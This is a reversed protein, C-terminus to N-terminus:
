VLGETDQQLRRGREFAIAILLTALGFGLPAPDFAMVLPFFPDAEPSVDGLLEEIAVWAGFGGLGQSLLGGILLSAGATALANAVSAAFPRGRLLKWALWAVSWAVAATTLLEFARAITLLTVVGASLGSATVAASDYAGEILTATGGGVGGPLAHDVELRLPVADAVADVILQTGGLLVAAAGVLLAGTGVAYLIGRETTREFTSTDSM